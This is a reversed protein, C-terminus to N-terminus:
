EPRTTTYAMLPSPRRHCHSVGNSVITKWEVENTKNKDM